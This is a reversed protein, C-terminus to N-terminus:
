RRRRWGDLKQPKAPPTVSFPFKHQRLNFRTAPQHSFSRAEEDAIKNDEQGGSNGPRKTVWTEAELSYVVEQSARMKRM